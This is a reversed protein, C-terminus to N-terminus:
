FYCRLPTFSLIRGLYIKYHKKHLYKPMKNLSLEAIKAINEYKAKNYIQYNLLLKHFTAKGFYIKESESSILLNLFENGREKLYEGLLTNAEKIKGRRFLTNIIYIRYKDNEYDLKLAEELYSQLEILKKSNLFNKKGKDGFEIEEIGGGTVFLYFLSYAKQDPHLNLLSYNQKIINYRQKKTFFNHPNILINRRNINAALRTVSSHTGYIKNAFSMLSVDYLLMQTQSLTNFDRFDNALYVNTLNLAKLLHEVSSIDDTFIIVNQRKAEEKIIHYALEYPTAHYTTELNQKRFPAYSYVTDSNRIHIACFDGLEKAKLTAKQILEKIKSHFGINQWIQNIQALYDEEDIDWSYRMEFPAEFYDYNEKEFLEKFKELNNINAPYTKINKMNVHPYFTMLSTVENQLICHRDLFDKAFVEEKTDNNCSIIKQGQFSKQTTLTKVAKERFENDSWIINEKQKKLM